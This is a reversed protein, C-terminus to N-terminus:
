IARVPFKLQSAPSPFRTMSLATARAAVELARGPLTHLAQNPVRGHARLSGDRLRTAVDGSSSTQILASHSASSVPGTACVPHRRHARRDGMSGLVLQQSRATTTCRSKAPRCGPRTTRACSTATTASTGVVRPASAWAAFPTAKATATPSVNPRSAQSPSTASSASDSNSAWFADAEAKPHSAANQGPPAAM